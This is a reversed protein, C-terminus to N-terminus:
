IGIDYGLIFEAVNFDQLNFCCCCCCCCFLYYELLYSFTLVLDQHGLVHLSQKNGPCKLRKWSIKRTERMGGEVQVRWQLVCHGQQITLLILNKGAERCHGVPPGQEAQREGKMEQWKCQIGAGSAGQQNNRLCKLCRQWRLADERAKGETQFARTGSLHM